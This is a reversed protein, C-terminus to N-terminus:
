SKKGQDPGGAGAKRAKSRVGKAAVKKSTTAPEEASQKLQELDVNLSPAFM